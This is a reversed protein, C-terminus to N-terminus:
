LLSHPVLSQIFNAQDFNVQQLNMQRLDAQRITLNSFDYLSLDQNCHYLLNLLNGAAYGSAMHSQSRCTQLLNAWNTKTVTVRGAIPNLILRTQIERIDVTATAQLLAHCNLLNIIGNELEDRVQEVFRSTVYEMVVNQLTFGTPSSEIFSRWSLNELTALLKYPPVLPVIADILEPLFVPKRHIALWYLVTKELECLREFQQDLLDYIDGFATIGQVLLCDIDNLFLSRITTAAIKLKLPNGAYWGQLTQAEAETPDIGEAQLLKLADQSQLGKLLLSRIPYNKTELWGIEKPRERSILILCSKHPSEGVRRILEEYGAFGQRYCGTHEGAQLITELNDLVLLCRTQKLCQLLRSILPNLAKPLDIDPQRSLAHILGTLKEEVTPAHCLSRWVVSQFTTPSDNRSTIQEILKAVLCTKGVGGMGLVTILRCGTADPMGSLSQKEVPSGPQVWQALTELEQTRGYFISVASADGWDIKVQAISLVKLPTIGQQQLAQGHDAHSFDSESFELSLARFFSDLSRHDVGQEADLVKAVTDPTLRTRYGLEAITIKQGFNEEDELHAIADRLKQMGQLTLVIGRKRKNAPNGSTM